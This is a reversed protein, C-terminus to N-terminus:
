MPLQKNPWPKSSRGNIPMTPMWHSIRHPRGSNLWDYIVVNSLIRPIYDRTERYPITELWVDPATPFNQSWDVSKGEGANYAAAVLLPHDFQNFLNKQYHIGLRLNLPATYLDSRNCCTLGLERGMRSATEPLLQMLGHARAPSLADKAWASEQKIVAMVWPSTVKSQAAFDDITDAYAVPYRSEYDQWRGMDAMITIVKAYWGETKMRQALALKEDPQLDSYALNWESRAMSLLGAHYLEVAREIPKPMTFDVLGQEAPKQCLYYPLRLHDAALFGYYHTQKSLNRFIDRAQKTQGTKAYARALWYQWRQHHKQTVPMKEIADVVAPWDGKFLYYRTIWARIQQDKSTPQLANMADISFDEYDTAAFLATLREVQATQQESFGHQQKLQPWIKHLESPKNKAAHQAAIFLLETTKPSGNLTTAHQLARIDDQLLMDVLQVWRPAQKLQGSLYRFLPLERNIFSLEIRKLLLEETQHGQERWWGFVENCADPASRGQLWAQEVLAPLNDKKGTKLLATLYWCQRQGASFTTGHKLLLSWKKQQALATQLHGALRRNLPSDPHSKKFANIEAIPLQDMDAVLLAYDLYHNIPYDTLAKRHLAVEAHHGSLAKHYLDKFLLRQDQNAAISAGSFVMFCLVILGIIPKIPKYKATM